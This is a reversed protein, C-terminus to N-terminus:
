RGGKLKFLFVATCATITLTWAAVLIAGIVIAWMLM